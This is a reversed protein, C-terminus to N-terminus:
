SNKSIEKSYEELMSKCIKSSIEAIISILGNASKDDGKLQSKFEQLVKVRINELDINNM